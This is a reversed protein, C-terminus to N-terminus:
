RPRVNSRPASKPDTKAPIRKKGTKTPMLSSQQCILQAKKIRLNLINKCSCVLAFLGLQHPPWHNFAASQLDARMAYPLKVVM